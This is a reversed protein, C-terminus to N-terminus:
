AEKYDSSQVRLRTFQMDKNLKIIKQPTECEEKM